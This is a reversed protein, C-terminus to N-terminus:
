ERPGRPLDHGPALRIEAGGTLLPRLIVQRLGVVEEILKNLIMNIRVYGGVGLVGVVVVAPIGFPMSCLFYYIGVRSSHFLSDVSFLLSSRM